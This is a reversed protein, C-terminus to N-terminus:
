EALYNDEYLDVFHSEKAIRVTERGWESYFESCNLFHHMDSTPKLVNEAVAIHGVIDANSVSFLRLLLFDPFLDAPFILFFFTSIEILQETLIKKEARLVRECELFALVKRLFSMYVSVPFSFNEIEAAPWQLRPAM